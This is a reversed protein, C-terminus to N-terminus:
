SLKLATTWLMACCTLSHSLCPTLFARTSSPIRVAPSYRSRNAGTSPLMVCSQFAMVDFLRNRLPDKGLRSAIEIVTQQLMSKGIILEGVLNLVDDIRQSDVRLPA